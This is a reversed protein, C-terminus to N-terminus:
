SASGILTVARQAARANSLHVEAGAEALAQAQRELGQPDGSTGVCAVVVRLERGDAQATALAERIAPAMTAAPDADAGHGLVVDLLVVGVSANRSVKALHDLRITPDIMPHPRGRTMEDSGFDIMVTGDADLSSGLRHDEDLPINSWVKGLAGEALIMAEDCLTGGAFLGRLLGSAPQAAEGWVPWSPIDRGLSTLVQETAATLDPQDAGLLAFQVPTSLTSAFERLEAAVEDAPPKSVVVILETAADADLRRMAQKTSLARVDAGLDRGGVGLAATIGVGAHDLLALLQQCGTGSAAVIGVPGPRVTNAFGLGIGNVVATGCDPGMVLLDRDTAAQKLAIEEAVPVNDSFIMVDRGAELADMAEVTASQGPVSILALGADGRSLASGTTRPPATVEGSGSPQRRSAALAADVAALAPAIHESTEVRLAVVMDNPSAEPVDFGMGAIVELNLETAMAVQAAVVGDVAAVDKSVQLLAVSDAYAGPRLEVHEVAPGTM